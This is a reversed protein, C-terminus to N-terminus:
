PDSSNQTIARFYKESKLLAEMARKYKAESKKLGAIEQRLAALETPPPKTTKAEDTM